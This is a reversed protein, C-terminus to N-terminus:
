PMSIVYGSTTEILSLGSLFPTPEPSMTSCSAALLSAVVALLCRTLKM